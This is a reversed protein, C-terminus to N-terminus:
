ATEVGRVRNSFLGQPRKQIVLVVAMLVVIKGLVAGAIPELFKSLIGLSFAALVSGVLKGVGGLVVVLFSDVIFSQGLDPGVNGLQSLAVGGLGGVGSGLAFTWTDVRATRIGMCAAMARNQTVARVALGLSTGRLVFAIFGVVVATFLVVAVRNYPVVVGDFIETGGALWPPNEVAVNQAGFISRVSQILLLSLGYTALLTELPRGYLFRIVSRELLAGLAMCSLLAVPVAAILYLSVHAPFHSRFFVQTAYTAYAGIMLMEGHAMNIVRMVGFTIALGLACLLLISGTSMGYILDATRDVLLQKRDLATLAREAAARVGADAEPYSGDPGATTLTRLKPRFRVSGSQQIAKVAGLRRAVDVSALDREALVAVIARRVTGDKERELASHLAQADEDSDRKGLTDVAALRVQADRSGLELRAVLPALVRRVANNSSPPHGPDSGPAAGTAADRAAGSRDHLYVKGSDTVTLDGDRLAELVGLAREDGCAGLTEVAHAVGETSPQSLGALGEEFAGGEARATGMFLLMLAAAAAPIWFPRARPTPAM